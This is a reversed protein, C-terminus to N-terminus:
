LMRQRHGLVHGMIFYVSTKLSVLTQHVRKLVSWLPPIEFCAVEVLMVINLGMEQVVDQQLTVHHTVHTLFM